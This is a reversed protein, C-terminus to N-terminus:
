KALAFRILVFRILVFRILVPRDPRGGRLRGGGAVVVNTDLAVV